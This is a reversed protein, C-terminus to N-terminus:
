HPLYALPFPPTQALLNDTTPRFPLDPFPPLFTDAYPTDANQSATIM